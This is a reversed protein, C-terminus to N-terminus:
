LTDVLRGEAKGHGEDVLCWDSQWLTFNNNDYSSPLALMIIM